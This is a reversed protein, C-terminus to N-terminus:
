TYSQTLLQPRQPGSLTYYGTYLKYRQSWTTNMVSGVISESSYRCGIELGSERGESIIETATVLM